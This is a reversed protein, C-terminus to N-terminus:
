AAKQYVEATQHAESLQYVQPAQFAKCELCMSRVEGTRQQWTIWCPVEPKLYAPCLLRLVPDCQTIEWCPKEGRARKESIVQQARAQQWREIAHGIGVVLLLPVGIRLFFMFAVLGIGM